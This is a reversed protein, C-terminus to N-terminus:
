NKAYPARRPERMNVLMQFKKQSDFGELREKEPFHSDFVSAASPDVEYVSDEQFRGPCGSLAGPVLECAQLPVAYMHDPTGIDFIRAEAFGCRKYFDPDGYILIAKHGLRAAAKQSYEVLATGIGMGQYKPHVSLPGFTLVQCIKGNDCLIEANTYMINAAIEGDVIAVLDLEPIFARSDRLIHALYHEDCGPVYHNWFAERTLEEVAIYDAPVEQRYKIEPM